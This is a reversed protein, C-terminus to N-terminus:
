NSWDASQDFQEWGRYIREAHSADDYYFYTINGNPDTEETPRGMADVTATATLQLGGGSPTSWGSPLSTFTSTQTTDVDTISKTLTGTAVDYAAYNLFGDADKTWIPNEFSDYVVVSTDASNPGNEGTTM